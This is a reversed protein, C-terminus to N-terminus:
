QLEILHTTQSTYNRVQSMVHYLSWCHCSKVESLSTLSRFYNKIEVYKRDVIENSQSIGVCFKFANYVLIEVVNNNIQLVWITEIRWVNKM